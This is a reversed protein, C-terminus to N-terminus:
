MLNVFMCIFWLIIAYLLFKIGKNYWKIKQCCIQSNTHIQEELDEILHKNTIQNVRNKYTQLEMKSITEFFFISINNNSSKTRAIIAQILCIISTFNTLYLLVVLIFSILEKISIHSFDTFKTINQISDTISNNFLMGILIGIIALAFSSKTDINNIWTNIMTLTQFADEKNFEQETQKNNEEM